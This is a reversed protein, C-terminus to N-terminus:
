KLSHTHGASAHPFEEQPVLHAHHVVRFGGGLEGGLEGAFFLRQGFFCFGGRVSCRQQGQANGPRLRGLFSLWLRAVGGRQTGVRAGPLATQLGLKAARPVGSM